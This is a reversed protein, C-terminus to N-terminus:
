KFKIIENQNNQLSKVWRQEANELKPRVAALHCSVGRSDTGSKWHDVEYQM